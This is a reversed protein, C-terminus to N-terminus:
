MEGNSLKPETLASISDPDQLKKALELRAIAKIQSCTHVAVGGAVQLRDEELQQLRGQWDQDLESRAAYMVSLHQQLRCVEYRTKELKRRVPDDNFYGLALNIASTIGPLIGLLVTIAIAERSGSDTAEVGGAQGTTDVMSSEVGAFSISRTEWRLYFTACFLLLFVALMALLMWLRVGNMRYRYYHLFRAAVLPIFNLSIACGLTLIISVMQSQYMVRDFVTYLTVADLASLGLVLFILVADKTWFAQDAKNLRDVRASLDYLRINKKM